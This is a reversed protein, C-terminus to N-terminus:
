FVFRAGLGVAWDYADSKLVADGLLYEYYLGFGPTLMKGLQLELTSSFDNDDDHDILMRYDAKFWGDVRQIKRLFIVRPETQRVQPANDDEDYSYLYRLLTVLSTRESPIWGIGALPAVIDAGEGTGDEFDGLNKLWEVGFTYTADIGFPKGPVLFLGGLKLRDFSRATSGSADSAAYRLENTLKFRAGLLYGGETELSNRRGGGDLDYYRYRLDQYSVAATPNSADAGTAEAGAAASAMGFMSASVLSALLPGLYCSQRNRVRGM